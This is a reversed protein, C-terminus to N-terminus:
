ELTQSPLHSPLIRVGYKEKALIRMQEYTRYDHPALATMEYFVKTLYHSAEEKISIKKEFIYLDSMQTYKSLDEVRENVPNKQKLQEILV